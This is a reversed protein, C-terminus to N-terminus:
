GDVDGEQLELVRVIELGVALDAHVSALLRCRWASTGSRADGSGGDGDDGSLDSQGAVQSM